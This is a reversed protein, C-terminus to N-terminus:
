VLHMQVTMREPALKIYEPNLELGVYQRGYQVAVRGTTGSGSFPDLVIDGPRSGALICPEILKPPFTAFHAGPYPQTAVTWVTRKNVSEVPQYRDNFGTYTAKGLADQKKINDRPQNMSHPTQGPAGDINKHDSSVGRLKRPGTSEAPPEKIAESDYYYRASKTLLFIYEHSKTPRDTVSEPMPNPKHWIIDSRLYWGDAQLALAVRWPIGLLQTPQLGDVKRDGGGWRGSGREMRKSKVTDGFYSGQNSVQKSSAPGVGGNGNGGAYSDGLNLWLTGDDRMVRWVERFVAVMNDIYEQPTQELGLQGDIGYDRLGYYPPSTVCTQITGDALPIQLANANLIM